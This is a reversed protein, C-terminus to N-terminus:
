SAGHAGREAGGSGNSGGDEDDCGCGGRVREADVLHHRAGDGGLAAGVLQAGDAGQPQGAGHVDAALAEAEVRLDAREILAVAADAGLERQLPQGGDVREVAGLRPVELREFPAAFRLAGGVVLDREHALVGLELPREEVPLLLAVLDVVEAGLVDVAGLRVLQAHRPLAAVDVPDIEVGVGEEDDARHLLGLHAAGLAHRLAVVAGVLADGADPDREGDLRPGLARRLVRADGDVAGLDVDVDAGLREAIRLLPLRHRADDDGPRGLGVDGLRQRRRRRRRRRHDVGADDAAEARAVDARGRHRAADGRHRRAVFAALGDEEDARGRAAHPLRLVAARRELRHEVFLAHLRDAGNRDIRRIGLRDRTPVPSAQVRLEVEIPSPM